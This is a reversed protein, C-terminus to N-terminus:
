VDAMEHWLDFRSRDREHVSRGDVFCIDFRHCNEYISVDNEKIQHDYRDGILKTNRDHTRKVDVIKAYLISKVGGKEYIMM